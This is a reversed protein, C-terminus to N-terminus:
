SLLSNKHSKLSKKEVCYITGVRKNHTVKKEESVVCDEKLHNKM